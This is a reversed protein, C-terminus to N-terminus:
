SVRGPPWGVHWIENLDSYPHPRPSCGTQWLKPEVRQKKNTDKPMNICALYLQLQCMIPVNKPCLICVISLILNESYLLVKTKYTRQTSYLDLNLLLSLLSVPCQCRCFTLWLYILGNNYKLTILLQSRVIFM